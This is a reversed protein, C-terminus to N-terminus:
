HSVPHAAIRPSERTRTEDASVNRLLIKGNLCMMTILDDNSFCYNNQALLERAYDFTGQPFPASHMQGFDTSLLVKEPGVIRISEIFDSLPVGEITHVAFCHEIFVQEFRSLYRQQQDDIQNAPYHPHTVVIHKIGIECALPVLHMVETASLHGTALLCGTQQMFELVALLEPMPEMRDSFAKVPLQRTHTDTKEHMRTNDDGTNDGDGDGHAAHHQTHGCCGSWRPDFDYGFTRLHSEAHVTPMWVMMPAPDALPSDADQRNAGLASKIADVNLGGVFRNLVIGGFFNAGAHRRALAALATTAYTHNKLVLAANVPKAATALQLVDYRRPLMEPGVHYHSDVIGYRVLQEQLREANNM